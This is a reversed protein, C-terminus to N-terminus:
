RGAVRIGTARVAAPMDDGEICSGHAPDGCGMALVRELEPISAVQLSWSCVGVRSMRPPYVAVAGAAGVLQRRVTLCVGPGM